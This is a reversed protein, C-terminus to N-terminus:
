EGIAKSNIQKERTLVSLLASIMGGNCCRMKNKHGNGCIVSMNESLWCQLDHSQIDPLWGLLMIAAQVNQVTKHKSSEFEGEM